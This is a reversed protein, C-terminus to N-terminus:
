DTGWKKTVWSYVYLFRPFEETCSFSRSINPNEEDVSVMPIQPSFWLVSWTEKVLWTQHGRRDDGGARDCNYGGCQIQPELHDLDVMQAGKKGMYSPVSNLCRVLGFNLCLYFTGIGSKRPKGLIVYIMGWDTNSLQNIYLGNRPKVPPLCSM